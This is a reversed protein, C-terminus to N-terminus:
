AKHAHVLGSKGLTRPRVLVPCVTFSTATRDGKDGVPVKGAQPCCVWQSMLRCQGLDGLRGLVQEGWGLTRTMVSFVLCAPLGQSQSWDTPKLHTGQM